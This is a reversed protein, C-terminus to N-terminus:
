QYMFTLNLCLFDRLMFSLQGDKVTAVNCHGQFRARPLVVPVNSHIDYDLGEGDSEGDENEDEKDSQEHTDESLLEEAAAWLTREADNDTM